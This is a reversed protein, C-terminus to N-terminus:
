FKERLFDSLTQHKPRTMIWTCAEVIAASLDTHPDASVDAEYILKYPAINEGYWLFVKPQAEVGFNILLHDLDQPPSVDFGRQFDNISDAGYTVDLGARHKGFAGGIKFARGRCIVMSQKERIYSLWDQWDKPVLDALKIGVERQVYQLLADCEVTLRQLGRSSEVKAVREAELEILRYHFTV